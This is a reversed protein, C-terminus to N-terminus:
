RAYVKRCGLERIIMVIGRKIDRSCHVTWKDHHPLWGL